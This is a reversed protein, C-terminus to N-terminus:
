RVGLAGLLADRLVGQSNIAHLIGLSGPRPAWAPLGDPAGAEAGFAQWLGSLGGVAYGSNRLFARRSAFPKPVPHM